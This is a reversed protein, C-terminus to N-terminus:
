GSWYEQRSFEMSLPAQHAVIWPTVSDSLVLDSVSESVKARTVLLSTLLFFKELWESAEGYWKWDGGVWWFYDSDLSYGNGQM